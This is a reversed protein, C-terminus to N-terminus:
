QIITNFGTIVEHLDSGYRGLQKRIEIGELDDIHKTLETHGKAIAQLAESYSLLEQQRAEIRAIRSFYDEAFKTREYYSLSDNGVRDSYTSKLREKQVELKQKLNGALNLQLFDILVGLPQDARTVYTKLKKRRYNDTFARLLTSGVGSYANVQEANLTIPGFDGETLSQTLVDTNINTLENESLRSLGEFYYYTTHYILRTISDAKQEEVCDCPPTHIRLKRINEDLCNDLCTQRFSYHIEEFKQLGTLSDLSFEHIHQLNVCGLVLMMTFAALVLRLSTKKPM